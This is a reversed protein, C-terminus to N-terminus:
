VLKNFQILKVSNTEFMELYKAMYKVYNDITLMYKKCNLQNNHISSLQPIHIDAPIELTFNM